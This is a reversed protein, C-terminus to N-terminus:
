KMQSVINECAESIDATKIDQSLNKATKQGSFCLVKDILACRMATNITHVRAMITEEIVTM